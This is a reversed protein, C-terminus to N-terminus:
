SVEAAVGGITVTPTTVIPYARSVGVRPTVPSTRRVALADLSDAFLVPMLAEM